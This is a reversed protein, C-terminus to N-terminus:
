PVGEVGLIDEENGERFGGYSNEGEISACISRLEVM